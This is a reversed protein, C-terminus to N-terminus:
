KHKLNRRNLKSILGKKAGRAITILSWRCNRNEINLKTAIIMNTIKYENLHFIHFFLQRTTNVQNLASWKMM